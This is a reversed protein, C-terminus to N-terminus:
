KVLYIYPDQYLTDLGANDVITEKNTIHLNNYKLSKINKEKTFIVKNHLKKSLLLYHFYTYNNTYITDYQETIELVKPINQYIGQKFNYRYYYDKTHFLTITLIIFTISNKLYQLTIRHVIENM